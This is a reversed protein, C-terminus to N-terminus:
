RSGRAAARADARERRWCCRASCPTTASPPAAGRRHRRVLEGGDALAAAGGVPGLAREVRELERLSWVKAESGCLLHRVDFTADPRVRLKFGLAAAGCRSSRATSRRSCACGRGARGSAASRATSRSARAPGRSTSREPSGLLRRAMGDLGVQGHREERAAGLHPRSPLLPRSPDFGLRRSPRAASRAEGTQSRAARAGRLGATSPTRACGARRRARSRTGARGCRAPCSRSSPAGRRVRSGGTARAQRLVRRTSLALSVGIACLVAYLAGFFAVHGADWVFERSWPFM